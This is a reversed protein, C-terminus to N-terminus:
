EPAITTKSKKNPIERVLKPVLFGPLIAQLDAYIKKARDEDIDFHSAGAVPDFLHLYYPMVDCDFLKESLEALCGASDNIGHLLVTQNLVKIGCSQLRKISESVASDIENAHNIHLVVIPKLRTATAWTLFTSDIRSPIVVPLRTHIRLRKIHAIAAIQETLWALFHDNAALPDGGSYIVENIETDSRIYGLASQWQEKSQRNEQYPFHRRFCYRCNIACTPSIVLLLRNAYKHVIGPIPNHSAEDLPDPSYGDVNGVEAKTPMVQLLLPDSPNNAQMRSVFPRPVRLPFDAIAQQSTSLATPSLNLSGLLEDITTISQSLEVKWNPTITIPQPSNPM